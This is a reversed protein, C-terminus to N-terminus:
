AISEAYVLGRWFEDRKATPGHDNSEEPRGAAIREGYGVVQAQTDINIRPHQTRTFGMIVPRQYSVNRKGWTFFEWHLWPWREIMVEGLWLGTDTCVPFWEKAMRGWGPDLTVVSRFWDNVRQVEDDSSGMTVGNRLLLRRLQAIREFRSDMVRRYEARAERRPLDQLPGDTSPMYPEYDGWEVSM